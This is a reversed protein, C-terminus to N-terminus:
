IRESFLSEGDKNVKKKIVRQVVRRAYRKHSTSLFKRMKIYPLGLVMNDLNKGLTRRTNPMGIQGKMQAACVAVAEEDKSSFKPRGCKKFVLRDIKEKSFVRTYEGSAYALKVDKASNYSTFKLM